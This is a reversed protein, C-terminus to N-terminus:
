RSEDHQDSHAALIYGGGCTSHSLFDYVQSNEAVILSFHVARYEVRTARNESYRLERQIAIRAPLAPGAKNLSSRRFQALRKVIFKNYRQTRMADANLGPHELRM